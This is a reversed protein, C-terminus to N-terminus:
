QKEHLLGAKKPEDLAERKTELEQRVKRAANVLSIFEASLSRRITEDGSIAKIYARINKPQFIDVAKEVGDASLIQYLIDVLQNREQDTMNAYWTKITADLFVSM